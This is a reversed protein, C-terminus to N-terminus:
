PARAPEAVFIGETGEGTATPATAFTVAGTHGVAAIPYLGFSALRGGSPLADGVGAVRRLGAATVLFVAVTTAGGDVAATFAVAGDAALSPWLGFHALVGGDPAPRGLAAVTRLRGRELAFLAGMVPADKLTANFAITGADNLAIRESFKAFIGGLPTSDGAGVVMRVADGEALFLGGPVARGEVVAGFAVLGSNNMTPPGFAAFTGGAPAPDGQSVVKKLRVGTRLYIAEVSERGRRVTALFAVEGRNNLVPAEVGALTGGPIGPAAEGAVAIARLRGGSAVFIGEVTRGRSVAAAFAVAGADNMSPIPHKGFGSLTGGGPARDGEVAVRTIRDGSALFLGEGGSGRLLTAFFVVQGRGNVPALVPQAEISFHEFTGGGPAPQGALVAPRVRVAPSALAPAAVCGALVGSLLFGGRSM